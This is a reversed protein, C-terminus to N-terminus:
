TSLIARPFLTPPVTYRRSLSVNLKPTATPSVDVSTPATLQKDVMHVNLDINVFANKSAQQQLLMVADKEKEWLLDTRRPDFTNPATRGRHVVSTYLLIPIPKIELRVKSYESPTMLDRIAQRWESALSYWTPWEKQHRNASTVEQGNWTLRYVLMFPKLVRVVPSEVPPTTERPTPDRRASPRPQVPTKSGRPKAKTQKTVKSRRDSAPQTVKKRKQTSPEAVDIEDNLRAPPNRTRRRDLIM